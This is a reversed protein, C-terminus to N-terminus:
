SAVAWFHRSIPSFQRKNKLGMELRKKNNRRNRGMNERIEGAELCKQRTKKIRFRCTVLVPGKLHKSQKEFLLSGNSM